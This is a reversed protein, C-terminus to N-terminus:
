LLSAQGSGEFIAAKVGRKALAALFPLPEVLSALGAAGTRLLRGEVAWWGALACVVAAAVSPRDVAGLVRDDGVVGQTGRVEVRVAALGGDAHPSRLMPVRATLRDRRSAGVRATVRAVGPFAPALLFPEGLAARYCDVGRVPDPFWCLQRGSGGARRDWRDDRWDFAPGRLAQHHQRACAPGGTGVKAVHIEEVREFARAAHAALVCTLGPSFGAGVVVHLGRERAESDLDLLSRVDGVGDAVSVVHAGQDLAREAVPLHSGPSAVVVLDTGALATSLDPASRAVAGLSDMVEARRRGDPEVIVLDEVSGLALLQRAARAGVAGAGVVAARM